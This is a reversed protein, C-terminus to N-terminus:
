FGAGILEASGTLWGGSGNGRYLYMSGDSLVGLVDPKADGTFDGPSTLTPFRDWGTGITLGAPNSLTGMGNGAYLKLTGDGAVGLIDAKGDSNFDGASFVTGVTKWGYGVLTGTGTAWGGAGNGAYVYMSGDTRVAVIDRHRDGTFDGPSFVTRLGAWGSGIQAGSGDAWGGAGNGLYLRMTGDSLVAILDSRGDGSFDGPAIVASFAAWGSGIAIGSGTDWGGQGNGRYLYLTGDATIRLVDSRGDGDFDPTGIARKSVVPATVIDKFHIFNEVESVAMQRRHLWTNNWNSESVTVTSGHVAEVYAIHGYTGANWQAIAGVAPTRDVPISLARARDDWNNANGLSSVRAVGNRSLKWAAYNTCNAGATNTGTVYNGWWSTWRASDWAASDPCNSNTCTTTWAQAPTVIALPALVTATLAVLALLWRGTSRRVGVNGLIGPRAM